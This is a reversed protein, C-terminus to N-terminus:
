PEELPEADPHQLTGHAEEDENGVEVVIDNEGDEAVVGIDPECADGDECGNHDYNWELEEFLEDCEFEGEVGLEPGQDGPEPVENRGQSAVKGVDEDGGEDWAGLDVFSCAHDEL